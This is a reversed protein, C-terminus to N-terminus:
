ADIRMHRTEPMWVLSVLLALAPLAIPYALTAALNHTSTVALTTALSGFVYFDYWEIVNGVAAATVV